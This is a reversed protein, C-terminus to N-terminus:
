KRRKKRKTRLQDKEVLAWLNDSAIQKIRTWAARELPAFTIAQTPCYDACAPNGGCLDCKIVTKKEEIFHIGGYPCAKVCLMCGTCKEDIVKIIGSSGDLVLAEFPCSKMCYVEDCHICTIPVFFDDSPYAVRIRLSETPLIMQEHAISCAM